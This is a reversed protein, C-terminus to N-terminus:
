EDYIDKKEIEKIVKKEVSKPIIVKPILENVTADTQITKPSVKVIKTETPTDIVPISGYKVLTFGKNFVERAFKEVDEIDNLKCYQIFEDDLILSNSTKPKLIKLTM